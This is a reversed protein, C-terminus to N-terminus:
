VAHFTDLYVTKEPEYKETNLGRVPFHLGSIVGYISKVCVTLPIQQSKIQNNVRTPDKLFLEDM